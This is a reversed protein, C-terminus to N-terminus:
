NLIGSPFKLTMIQILLTDVSQSTLALFNMIVFRLFSNFAHVACRSICFCPMCYPPLTLYTHGRAGVPM